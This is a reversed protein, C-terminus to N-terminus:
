PILVFVITMVAMIIVAYILTLLYKINQFDIYETEKYSLLVEVFYKKGLYSLLILVVYLLILGPVLFRVMMPIINVFVVIVVGGTIAFFYFDVFLAKAFELSTYFHFLSKISNYQEKNM